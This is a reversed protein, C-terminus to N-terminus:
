ANARRKPQRKSVGCCALEMAAPHIFVKLGKRLTRGEEHVAATSELTARSVAIAMSATSAAYEVTRISFPGVAEAAFPGLAGNAHPLVLTNRLFSVSSVSSSFRALVLCRAARVSWARARCSCFGIRYTSCCGISVPTPMSSGKPRAHLEVLETLPRPGALRGLESTLADLPTTRDLRALDLRTYHIRLIHLIRRHLILDEQEGPQPPILRMSYNM